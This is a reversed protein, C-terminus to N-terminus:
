VVHDNNEKSLKKDKLLFMAEMKPRVWSTKFMLLALRLMIREFNFSDYFAVHKFNM